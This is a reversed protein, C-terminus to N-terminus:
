LGSLVLPNYGDIAAILPTHACFAVVADRGDMFRLLLRNVARPADSDVLLTLQEDLASVPLDTLAVAVAVIRIRRFSSEPAPRTVKRTSARGPPWGFRERHCACLHKIFLVSQTGRSRPQSLNRSFLPRFLPSGPSNHREPLRGAARGSRGPVGRRRRFGSVFVGLLFPNPTSNIAGVGHLRLRCCIHGQSGPLLEDGARTLKGALGQNQGAGAQGYIAQPCSPKVSLFGDEVARPTQRLPTM